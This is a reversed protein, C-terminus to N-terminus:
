SRSPVFQLHNYLSYGTLYLDGNGNDAIDSSYDDNNGGAEKVWLCKGSNNYKAIFIDFNEVHKLTKNGLTVTSDYRGTLTFYGRSDLAIGSPFVNCSGSGYYNGTPIM